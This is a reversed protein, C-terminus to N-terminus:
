RRIARFFPDVFGSASTFINSLISNTGVLANRAQIRYTKDVLPNGLGGRGLPVVGGINKSSAVDQVFAYKSYGIVANLEDKIYFETNIIAGIGSSGSVLNFLIGGVVELEHPGSGAPVVIQWGPVDAAAAPIVFNASLTMGSIESGGAPGAPGQIGQIGQGGVPGVDGPDGQDGKPGALGEGATGSPTFLEEGM